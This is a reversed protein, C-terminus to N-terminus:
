QSLRSLVHTLARDLQTTDREMQMYFQKGKRGVEQQLSPFALLLKVVSYFDDLSRPFVIAGADEYYKDLLPDVNSREAVVCAGLALLYNVRHVELASQHHFHMIMVVKSSRVLNDLSSGFVCDAIRKCSIFKLVLREGDIKTRLQIFDLSRKRRESISGFFLLDISKPNEERNVCDASADINFNMGDSRNEVASDVFDHYVPLVWIDKFGLEELFELNSFSFDLIGLAGSLIAYYHM